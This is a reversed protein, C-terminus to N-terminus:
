TVFAHFRFGKFVALFPSTTKRTAKKFGERSIKWPGPRLNSFGPPVALKTTALGCFFKSRWPKDLLM